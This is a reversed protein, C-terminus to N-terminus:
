CLGHAEFRHEFAILQGERNASPGRVSPLLCKQESLGKRDTDMHVHTVHAELAPANHSTSQLADRPIPCSVEGMSRAFWPRCLNFADSNVSIGHLQHLGSIAALAM